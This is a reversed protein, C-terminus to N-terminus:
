AFGLRVARDKTLDRQQIAAACVSFAGIGLFFFKQKDIRCAPVGFVTLMCAHM